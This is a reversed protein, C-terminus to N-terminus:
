PADQKCFPTGPVKVTMQEVLTDAARETEEAGPLRTPTRQRVPSMGLNSTVKLLAQQMPNAVTPTAPLGPPPAPLSEKPTSKTSALPSALQWLCEIHTSLETLMTPTLTELGALFQRMDVTPMEEDRLLIAEESATSKMTPGQLIRAEEELSAASGSADQLSCPNADREQQRFFEDWSRVEQSDPAALVDDHYDLEQGHKDYVPTHSGFTVPTHRDQSALRKANAEQEKHLCEQELRLQEQEYEIRAIEAQQIEIEHQHALEEKLSEITEKQRRKEENLRRESEQDCEERERTAEQQLQRSRYELMSVKTKAKAGDGQPPSALRTPPDSESMPSPYAESQQYEIEEEREKAYKQQERSESERRRDHTEWEQDFAGMTGRGKNEEQLKGRRVQRYEEENGLHRRRDQRHILLRDVDGRIRQLIELELHAEEQYRCQMWNKLATLEDHTKQHAKRDAMVQESTLNERAYDNGTTTAKVAYYHFKFDVTKLIAKLRFMVYLLVKSDHRVIGSYQFPTTEDKWFQMLAMFYRWWELCRAAIDEGQRRQSGGPPTPLTAGRRSTMKEMQSPILPFIWKEGRVWVVEFYVAMAMCYRAIFATRHEFVNGFDTLEDEFDDRNFRDTCYLLFEEAQEPPATILHYPASMFMGDPRRQAIVDDESRDRHTSRDRQPQELTVKKQVVTVVSQLRGTKQLPSQTPIEVLPKPLTQHERKRSPPRLNVYSNYTAKLQMRFMFNGQPTRNGPHKALPSGVGSPIADSTHPRQPIAGTMTNVTEKKLISRGWVETQPRQGLTHHCEEEEGDPEKFQM